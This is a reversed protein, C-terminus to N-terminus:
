EGGFPQNGFVAGPFLRPGVRQLVNPTVLMRTNAPQVSPLGAAMSEVFGFILEGIALMKLIEWSEKAFPVDDPRGTIPKLFHFLSWMGRAANLKWLEHQSVGTLADLDQPTYRQAVACHAEIEGAGADLHYQLKEGAPNDPDTMALYSPRPYSPRARLMDGVISPSYCLLFNEPSIYSSAASNPTQAM